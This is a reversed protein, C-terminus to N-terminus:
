APEGPGDPQSRRPLLSEQQAAADRLATAEAESLRRWAGPRLGELQLPGFAVRRLRRVNLGVAACLRRIERNRGERLTIRLWPGAPARAVSEPRAPGDALVVGRRLREMQDPGPDPECWVEYVRPVGHRPHTLAYTLDGDNTLLLLGESQADLRGVPYLRGLDRPVLDLVTARGQPDRATALYGRPKHLMLIVTEAAPAVPTGDVEVRDTGAEVTRAPDTVTEGNIRVRGARVMGEAARRSAVGAHALYKHLRDAM